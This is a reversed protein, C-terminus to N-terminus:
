AAGGVVEYQHRYGAVLSRFAAITKIKLSPKGWRKGDPDEWQRTYFVREPYRVSPRHVSVVAVRQFGEGHAEAYTEGRADCVFEVGPKWCPRQVTDFGEPAAILEDYWARIFPYSFVFEAGPEIQVKEKQVTDRM